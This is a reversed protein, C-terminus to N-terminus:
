ERKIKVITNPNSFWSDFLVHKASHGTNVAYRLLELLVDPAKTVATKRRRGALSRNDVKTFDGLQNTENSSVL